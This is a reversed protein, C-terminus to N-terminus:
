SDEQAEPSVVMWSSATSCCSRTRVGHKRIDAVLLDFDKGTM